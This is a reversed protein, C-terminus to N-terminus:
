AAPSVLGEFLSRVYLEAVAEPAIGPAWSRLEAAANIAATLTQAAINVDLPRVSGDAIGDCIISAFRYSLRDFAELFGARLAEPVTTLASSRLLPAGGVQREILATTLGALVELGSGRESEAARIARWMIDFTRQFCAAVLDDKTAIHHYFAGKSLNLRASIREVSAGHYGEENIM